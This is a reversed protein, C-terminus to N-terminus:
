ARTATRTRRVVVVRPAREPPEAPDRPEPAVVLRGHRHPRPELIQGAALGIAVGGGVPDAPGVLLPALPLRGRALPVSLTPALRAPVEAHEGRRPELAAAGRHGDRALPPRGHRQGRIRELREAVLRAVGLGGRQAGDPEAREDVALHVLQGAARGAIRRPEVGDGREEGLVRAVM